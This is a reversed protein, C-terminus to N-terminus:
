AYEDEEEEEAEYDGDAEQLPSAADDAFAACEPMGAALRQVHAQAWAGGRAVAADHGLIVRDYHM